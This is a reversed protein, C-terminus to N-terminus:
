IKEETRSLFKVFLVWRLNSVATGWRASKRRQRAFRGKGLWFFFGPLRREIRLFAFLLWVFFRRLRVATKRRFIPGVPRDNPFTNFGVADNPGLAIAQGYTAFSLPKQKKQKLVATVNDAALEGTILAVLLSMRLLTGPDEVPCSADGIAYINAYGTSRLFPDVLMQNQGNVPLGAVKALDPVQFGGCWVTAAAPLFRGNTLQAGGENVVEIPSNELLDIDQEALAALMHNQIKAGKFDGVAGSSVLQVTLQPYHAKIECAAEIGTAGGGAVLVAEGATLTKLQTHLAATAREGFADLVYAYEAVGPVRQREIRSGLAYLLYDYALSQEGADTTVAVTQAEPNIAMAWGRQFKVATGRLLKTLSPQRTKTGTAAEHLRPREVFHDLGNVLTIETNLRKTKGALRLAAMVGAYGGGLVLIKTAQKTM